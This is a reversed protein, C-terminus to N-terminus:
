TRRRNKSAAQRTRPNNGDDHLQLIQICGGALYMSDLFSSIPFTREVDEKAFNLLIVSAM